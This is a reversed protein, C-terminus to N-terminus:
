KSLNNPLVHNTTNRLCKQHQSINANPPAPAIRIPITRQQRTTARTARGKGTRKNGGSSGSGTTNKDLDLADRANKMLMQEAFGKKWRMTTTTPAIPANPTTASNGMRNTVRGITSQQPVTTQIMAGTTRKVTQHLATARDLEAMAEQIAHELQSNLKRGRKM